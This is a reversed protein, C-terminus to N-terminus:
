KSRDFTWNRFASLLWGRYWASDRTTSIHWEVFSVNIVKGSTDVTLAVEAWGSVHFETSPPYLDPFEHNIPTPCNGLQHENTPAKTASLEAANGSLLCSPSAVIIAIAILRLLTKMGTRAAMGM